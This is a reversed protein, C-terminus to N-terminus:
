SQLGHLIELITNPSQLLKASNDAIYSTKNAVEIEPTSCQYAGGVILRMPGFVTTDM